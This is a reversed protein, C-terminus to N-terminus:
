EARQLCLRGAQGPLTITETAVCGRDEDAPQLLPAVPRTKLSPLHSTLLALGRGGTGGSESQDFLHQHLADLWEELEEGTEASFVLSQCGEPSPNIVCLRRSRQGSRDKEVM